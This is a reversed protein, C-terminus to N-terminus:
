GAPWAAHRNRRRGGSIARGADPGGRHEAHRRRVAGRRSLTPAHGCGVRWRLRGAGNRLSRCEGRIGPLADPDADVPDASVPGDEHTEDASLGTLLTHIAQVGVHVLDLKGEVLGLRGEVLGLRGEVQGLGTELRTLRATHDSQTASMAQILREQAGFKASLTGMDKDMAARLHAETEVKAKLTGLREEVSGRWQSSDELDDTM